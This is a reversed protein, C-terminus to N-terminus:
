LRNIYAEKIREAVRERRMEKIKAIEEKGIERVLIQRIREACVNHRKALARITFEGTQYLRAVNSNRPKYKRAIKQNHTM